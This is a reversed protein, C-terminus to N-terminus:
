PTKYFRGTDKGFEKALKSYLGAISDTSSINDIDSVQKNVDYKLKNTEKHIKETMLAQKEAYHQYIGASDIITNVDKLSNEIETDLSKVQEKYIANDHNLQSNKSIEIGLFLGLLFLLIVLLGIVLEKWYSKIFNLVVMLWSDM